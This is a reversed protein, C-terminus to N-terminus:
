LKEWKDTKVFWRIKGLMQTLIHSAYDYVGDQLLDEARTIAELAEQLHSDLESEKARHNWMYGPAQAGCYTCTTIGSDDHQFPVNGCFPCLKDEIM